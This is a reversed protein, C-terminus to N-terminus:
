ESAGEDAVSNRAAAKRGDQTVLAGLADIQPRHFTEDAAALARELRALGARIDDLEKAADKVRRAQAVARIRREEDASVRARGYNIEYARSYPIGVAVAAFAIKDVMKAAEESTVIERFADFVSNLMEARVFSNHAPIGVQPVNVADVVSSAKIISLSFLARMSARAAATEITM